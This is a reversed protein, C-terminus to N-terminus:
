LTEEDYFQITQAIKALRMEAIKEENLSEDMLFKISEEKLNEAYTSLISYTAIEYHEIKHLALVIGADRIM